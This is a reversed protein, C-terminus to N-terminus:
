PSLAPRSKSRVRLNHALDAPPSLIVVDSPSLGQVIEIRGNGKLGTKVARRLARGDRVMWVTSNSVAELPVLIADEVRRAIINIETTMGIHLPTDEPLSIRVRYNKNIPDGKPTIQAVTGSLNQDPFADAKVLVAQQTRVHPIDEEDVEAVIWLPKARGVWFLVDGPEAVEGVEGDKRLVIGDLPARLVLQRLREKAAAIAARVQGHESVAREYAQSSVVRREVLKRYRKVEAALFNERANLEALEAQEERDDLRALQDGTKVPMGECACLEAIRDRSLPTVKAWYVPEVVGTAYVAQVAPGRTPSVTEVVPIRFWYYGAAATLGAALFLLVVIIRRSL